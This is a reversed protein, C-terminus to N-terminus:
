CSEMRKERNIIVLKKQTSVGNVNALAIDKLNGIKLKESGLM